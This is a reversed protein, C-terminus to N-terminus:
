RLSLAPTFAPTIQPFLAAQSLILHSLGSTLSPPHCTLLLNVASTDLPLFFASPVVPGRLLGM